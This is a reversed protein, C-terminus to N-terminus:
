IGVEEALRKARKANRRKAIEAEAWLLIKRQEETVAWFGLPRMLAQFPLISGTAKCFVPILSAPIMHAAGDSLWKDLIARSVSRSNGPLKLGDTKMAATMADAVHDRSLGSRRVAERLASKFRPITNLSHTEFLSLQEM